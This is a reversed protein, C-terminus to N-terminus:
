FPIPDEYEDGHTPPADDGSRYSDKVVQESDRDAGGLPVDGAGSEVSFRDWQHAWDELERYLWQSRTLQERGVYMKRAFDIDIAKPLWLEPMTVESKKNGSGIEFHKGAQVVMWCAYHPLKQGEPASQNAISVVKQSHHRIVEEIHTILMGKFAFCVPVDYGNIFGISQMQGRYGAEYSNWARYLTRNGDEKFWRRRSRIITIQAGRAALGYVKKNNDGKFWSEEWKPIQTEDGAQEYTFFFGGTFNIGGAAEMELKGHKWFVVPASFQIADQATPDVADFDFNFDSM